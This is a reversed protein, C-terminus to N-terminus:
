VDTPHVSSHGRDHKLVEQAYWTEPTFGHSRYGVTFMQIDPYTKKVLRPRDNQPTTQLHIPLHVGGDSAIADTGGSVDNKELQWSRNKKKTPTIIKAKRKNTPECM